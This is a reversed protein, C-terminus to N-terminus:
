APTATMHKVVAHIATAADPKLTAISRALAMHAKNGRNAKPAVDRSMRVVDAADVDLADCYDLFRSLAIRCGGVEYKHITQLSVSLDSAVEQMSKGASMRAARLAAGIRRELDKAM